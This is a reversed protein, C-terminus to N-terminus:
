AFTPAGTAIEWAQGPHRRRSRGRDRRRHPACLDPRVGGKILILGKEGRQANM